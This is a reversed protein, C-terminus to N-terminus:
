DHCAFLRSIRIGKLPKEKEFRERISRLVAMSEDAWQIRNLGSDALSIDKVDYNM